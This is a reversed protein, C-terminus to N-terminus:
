HLQDYIKQALKKSITPTAEIEELSAESVARASGFKAILAKKRAQGIGEIDDLLTKDMDKKRKKAHTGNAFRHAEDRMRQVFYLVPDNHQLMFSPRDPVFFRERGANREEGKAM